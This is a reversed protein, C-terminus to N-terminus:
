SRNSWHSLPSLSGGDDYGPAHSTYTPATSADDAPRPPLAVGTDHWYKAGVGEMMLDYNGLGPVGGSAGPLSSQGLSARLAAQLEHDEPDAAAGWAGPAGFPAALSGPGAALLAASAAFESPARAAAAAPAPAPAAARAPVAVVRVVLTHASPHTAAVVLAEEVEANNTLSLVDGEPDTYELRWGPGPVGAEGFRTDPFTSAVLAALGHYTADELRVRRMDGNWSLKVSSSHAPPALLPPLFPSPLVRFPYEGGGGGVWGGVWGGVGGGVVVVM